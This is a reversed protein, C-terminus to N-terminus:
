RFYYIRESGCLPCCLVHDDDESEEMEDKNGKWECENCEADYDDKGISKNSGSVNRKIGNGAKQTASTGKKM